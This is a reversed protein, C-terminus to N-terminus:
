RVIEKTKTKSPPETNDDDDNIVITSDSMEMETYDDLESGSYDEEDNADANGASISQNDPQM